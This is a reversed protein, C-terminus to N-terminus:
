RQAIQVSIWYEEGDMDPMQPRNGGGRKGGGRTGGRMGGSRDGMNGDPMSSRREEMESKLKEQEEESMGVIELGVKITKQNSINLFYPSGDMSTLPIRFEYCFIGDKADAAAKFSIIDEVPLTTASDNQALTFKGKPKLSQLSPQEEQVQGRPRHGREGRYKDRMSDDRYHIGILKNESDEENLWLTFGRMSFMSALSTDNFRIMFDITMNDNVIGYVIKMEEQYRLPLGEWEQGDGDITITQNKWTSEIKEGCGTTLLVALSLLFSTIRIYM